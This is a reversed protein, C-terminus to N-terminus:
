NLSNARGKAKLGRPGSPIFSHSPFHQQLLRQKPDMVIGCHFAERWNHGSYCRQTYEFVLSPWTISAADM